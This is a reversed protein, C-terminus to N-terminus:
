AEEGGVWPKLSAAKISGQTTVSEVEDCVIMTIERLTVTLVGRSDLTSAINKTAAAVEEYSAMVGTPYNAVEGSETTVEFTAVYLTRKDGVRMQQPKWTRLQGNGSIDM